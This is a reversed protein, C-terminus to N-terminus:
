LVRLNAKQCHSWQSLSSCLWVITVKLGTSLEFNMKERILKTIPPLLLLGALLLSIGAVASGSFTMGLGGLAFIVGFIWALVLGLTIKKPEKKDM